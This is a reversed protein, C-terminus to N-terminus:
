TIEEYAKWIRSAGEEGAEALRVALADESPAVAGVQQGGGQRDERAAAHVVGLGVRADAVVVGGRRPRM